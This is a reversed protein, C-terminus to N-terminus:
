LQQSLRTSFMWNNASMTLPVSTLDPSDIESLSSTPSRVSSSSEFRCSRDDPALDDVGDTPANALKGSGKEVRNEPSTILVDGVSSVAIVKRTVRFPDLRRNGPRGGIQFKTIITVRGNQDARRVGVGGDGNTEIAVVATAHHDAFLATPDTTEGDWGFPVAGSVYHFCFYGAPIGIGFWDNLVRGVRREVGIFFLDRLAAALSPRHRHGARDGVGDSRPLPPWPPDTDRAFPPPRPGVRAPPPLSRSSPGPPDTEPVVVVPEELGGVVRPPFEVVVVAGRAGPPNRPQAATRM